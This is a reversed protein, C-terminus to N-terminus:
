GQISLGPVAPAGGPYSAFQGSSTRGQLTNIINNLGQSFTGFDTSLGAYFAGAILLGILVAVLVEATKVDKEESLVQLHHVIQLNRQAEALESSM